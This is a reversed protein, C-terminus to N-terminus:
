DGLVTGAGDLARRVPQKVRGDAFVVRRVGGALAESAGMVKKKMRDEAVAMFSDVDATPIRAILSSEHPFEAM